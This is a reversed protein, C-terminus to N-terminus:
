NFIRHVRLYDVKGILMKSVVATLLDREQINNTFISFLKKRSCGIYIQGCEQKLKDINRLIEWDQEITKGFGIGPDFIIRDMSISKKEFKEFQYKWTKILEDIINVNNSYIINIDSPVSLSHMLIGKVYPYKVLLNIMKENSFGSVDNIYDFNNKLAFEAINPYFTDISLKLNLNKSFKAIDPLIKKLRSFEEEESIKKSTPATSQAGVDIGYAKNEAFEFIKQKILDLNLSGDGSFSNDTINIIGFIKAM